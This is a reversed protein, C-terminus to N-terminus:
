EKSPVDAWDTLTADDAVPEAGIPIPQGAPIEVTRSQLVGSSGRGEAPKIRRILFRPM